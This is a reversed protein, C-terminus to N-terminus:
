FSWGLNFNLMPLVRKQDSSASDGQDDEVDASVAMFGVGGQVFLTFGIDTLLKYGVLPGVLLGAGIGSVRRGRLDDDISVHAYQIEAGLQLSEFPELPYAMVQAGLEWVQFGIEEEDSTEMTMSGVGGLLAIGCYEGVRAEAQLEFVPLIVHFPSFTLSLFPGPQASDGAAAEDQASAHGVMGWALALLSLVGVWATRIM